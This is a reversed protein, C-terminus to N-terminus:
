QVLTSEFFPNSHIKNVKYFQPLIYIINIMKVRRLNVTWHANFVNVM